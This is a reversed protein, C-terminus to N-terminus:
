VEFYTGCFLLVALILQGREAPLHSVVLAIREGACRTLDNAFLPESGFISRAGINEGEVPIDKYCLIAAVGNPPSGSKFYVGTVRALPKTSYIFAGYLCFAPSPIDDVFIAEGTLCKDFFHILLCFERALLCLCFIMTFYRWPHSLSYSKMCSVKYTSLLFLLIHHSSFLRGTGLRCLAHLNIPSGRVWDVYLMDFFILFSISLSKCITILEQENLLSIGLFLPDNMSLIDDNVCELFASFHEM